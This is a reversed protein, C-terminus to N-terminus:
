RTLTLQYAPQMFVQMIKQLKAFLMNAKISFLVDNHKFPYSHIKISLPKQAVNFRQLFVCM